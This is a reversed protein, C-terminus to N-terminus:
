DLDVAALSVLIKYEVSGAETILENQFEVKNELEQHLHQLVLNIMAPRHVRVVLQAMKPDAFRQPPDACTAEPPGLPPDKSIEELEWIKITFLYREGEKKMRGKIQYEYESLETFAYGCWDDPDVNFITAESVLRGDGNITGDPDISFTGSWDSNLYAPALDAGAEGVLTSVDYDDLVANMSFEFEQDLFDAEGQSKAIREGGAFESPIDGGSGSPGSCGAALILILILILIFYSSKRSRM